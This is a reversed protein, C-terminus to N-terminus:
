RFVNAIIYGANVMLNIYFISHLYKLLFFWNEKNKKHLTNVGKPNVKNVITSLHLFFQVLQEEELFDSKKIYMKCYRLNIQLALLMHLKLVNCRVGNQMLEM